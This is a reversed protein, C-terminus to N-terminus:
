ARAEAAPGGCLACPSTRDVLDLTDEWREEDYVFVTLVPGFLEECMTRYRPDRTEIVTPRVFYGETDDYQGGALIFADRASKAEDIARWMDNCVATSGTFHVGALDRSALVPGGITASYWFLV